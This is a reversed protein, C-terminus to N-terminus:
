FFRYTGWVSLDLITITSDSATAPQINLLAVQGCLAAVAQPVRVTGATGVSQNGEAHTDNISLLIEMSDAAAGYPKSWVPQGVHHFFWTTGTAPDQNTWNKLFGPFLDIEISDADKTNTTLSMHVSAMELPAESSWQMIPLTMGAALMNGIWSEGPAIPLIYPEFMEWTYVFQRDQNRNPTLTPNETDGYGYEVMALHGQTATIAAM